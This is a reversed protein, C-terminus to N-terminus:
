SRFSKVHGKRRFRLPAVEVPQGGKASVAILSPRRDPLPYKATEAGIQAAPAPRGGILVELRKGLIGNLVGQQRNSGLEVREPVVASERSPDVANGDVGQEPLETLSAPVQPRRLRRAIGDGVRQVLLVHRSRAPRRAASSHVSTRCSM